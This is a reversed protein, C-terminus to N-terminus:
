TCSCVAGVAKVGAPPCEGYTTHESLELFKSLYYIETSLVLQINDGEFYGRHV